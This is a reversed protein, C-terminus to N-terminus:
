RIWATPVKYQQARNELQTWEDQINRLEKQFRVLDATAVEIDAPSGGTSELQSLRTQVANVDTQVRNLRTRILQARERWHQEDRKVRAQPIKARDTIGEKEEDESAEAAAPAQDPSPAESTSASSPTAPASPSAGPGPRPSLGALDADTYVKGPQTVAARREAERRAADALSQAEPRAQSVLFGLATAAVFLPKM